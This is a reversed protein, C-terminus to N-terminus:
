RHCPWNYSCSMRSGGKVSRTTKPLRQRYHWVRRYECGTYFIYIDILFFIERRLEPIGYKYTTVLHVFDESTIVRIMFQAAKRDAIIRIVIWNWLIADHWEFMVNLGQDVQQFVWQVTMLTKLCRSVDQSGTPTKLYIWVM